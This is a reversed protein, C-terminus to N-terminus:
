YKPGETKQTLKEPRAIDTKPARQEGPAAMSAPTTIADAPKLPTTSTPQENVKTGSSIRPTQKTNATGTTAGTQKAAPSIPTNAQLTPTTKVQKVDSPAPTTTTTQASATLAFGLAFFSILLTKM